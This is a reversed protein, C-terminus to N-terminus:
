KKKEEGIVGGARLAKQRESPDDTFVDEKGLWRNSGREQDEGGRQGGGAGMGGGMMPM